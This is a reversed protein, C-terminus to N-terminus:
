KLHDPNLDDIIKADVWYIDWREPEGQAFFMYKGDTSLSAVHDEKSTNIMNGMNIAEGWIGEKNQFCIYLDIDGDGGAAGPRRSDFILFSEDPAICPHGDFYPSIVGGSLYESKKYHGDVLSAKVIGWDKKKLRVTYYITGNAASTVYMGPGYYQPEGWVDGARKIMWLGYPRDGKRFHSRPRESGFFMKSGDVTIHPEDDYHTGSFYAPEPKTWCGDKVRCVMITNQRLEISGRTFYFETGDLSFTIGFEKYEETSVIGPAFVEPSLGPSKQGFYPGKLDLFDVQKTCTNFPLLIFFTLGMYTLCRKM